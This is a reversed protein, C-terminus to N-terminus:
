ETSHDAGILMHVRPHPIEAQLHFGREPHNQMKLRGGLLAIRESIGLLGYHGKAALASLNFDESVGQGNDVISILLMRPSTHRLEIDVEDATSHKYVNSLSEQIIRFVSLEIDEPLQELNPDLNLNVKISARESWDESYSQLAIGLGLSDIVPPRLDKCIQRLDNISTRIHYRIKELRKVPLLDLDVTDDTELNELQYNVSLLDQILQDHLERALRKREEERETLSRRQADQLAMNARNLAKVQKTLEEILQQNLSDQAELNRKLLQQQYSLREAQQKAKYYSDLAWLTPTLHTRNATGLSAAVIAERTTQDTQYDAVLEGLNLVLIRDTVAFLHDLNRSNFIITTGKEQWVQILSLLKQQYRYNLLAFPDDVLLLKAPRIMTKAIAVLQRQESTLNTVPQRMSEFQVDLQNLIEKAQEGMRSQNLLTM